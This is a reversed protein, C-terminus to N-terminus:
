GNQDAKLMGKIFRKDSYMSLALVKVEPSMKVIQRTVDIGNLARM